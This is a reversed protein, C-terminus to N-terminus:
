TTVSYRFDLYSNCWQSSTIILKNSHLKNCLKRFEANYEQNNKRHKKGTAISLLTVTPSTVSLDVHRRAHGTTWLLWDRTDGLADQGGYCGTM